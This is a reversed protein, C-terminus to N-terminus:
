DFIFASFAEIIFCSNVWFNTKIENDKRRKQGFDIVSVSDNRSECEQEKDSISQVFFRSVRYSGRFRIGSVVIVM